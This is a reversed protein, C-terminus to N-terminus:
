CGLLLLIGINQSIHRPITETAIVVNIINVKGVTPIIDTWFLSVTVLLSLLHIWFALHVASHQKENRHINNLPVTEPAVQGNSSQYSVLRSVTTLFSTSATMESFQFVLHKKVFKTHAVFRACVMEVPVLYRDLLTHYAAFVALGFIYIGAWLSHIQWKWPGADDSRHEREFGRCRFEDCLGYDVSIFLGVIITTTSFIRQLGMVSVFVIM